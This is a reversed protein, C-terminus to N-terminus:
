LGKIIGEDIPCIYGSIKRFEHESTELDDEFNYYILIYAQGRNKENVTKEKKVFFLGTNQHKPNFIEGKCQVLHYSINELDLNYFLVTFEENQKKLFENLSKEIEQQGDYRWTGDENTRFLIFGKPQQYRPLNLEGDISELAITKQEIIRSFQYENKPVIFAFESAITPEVYVDFSSLNKSENDPDIPSLSTVSFPLGILLIFKWAVTFSKM